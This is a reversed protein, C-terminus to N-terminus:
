FSRRIAVYLNTNDEFQGFFSASSEGYFINGGAELRLADTVKYAANLRLYGDEDTPSYFNFGSLTLNQNMMQQTVRLTLIQRYEDVKPAGPILAGLYADYDETKEVYYQVAGTLNPVIEREFGVLFRWQSNPTFPDAGSKEDRSDYYGVEANGIGGLIPLRISAGYVALEPYTAEMDIVDFGTPSKWYGNYFYLAWEMSGSQGYLRASMEPGNESRIPMAAPITNTEGMMPNFYTLVRGDISRDPDFQPTVVLDISAKAGYWSLKLADSPAKLYEVDRGIFFANWDKPFLDNIFLLDGTGWTLIQRGLKLDMNDSPRFLAWAERLDLVGEGRGLDTGYEELVPDLVADATVRWTMADTMGDLALQGRIEGLTWDDYGQANQLRAGARAEIFGTINFAPESVEEKVTVEAEKDGLGPPLSPGGLGPPLSPGDALAAPSLVASLLALSFVSRSFAM